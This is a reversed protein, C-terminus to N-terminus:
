CFIGKGMAMCRKSTNTQPIVDLEPIVNSSLVERKQERLERRRRGGVVGGEVDATVCGFFAIIFFIVVFLLSLASNEDRRKNNKDLHIVFTPNNPNNNNVPAPVNQAQPKDKNKVYDSLIRNVEQENTALIISQVYISGISSGGSLQILKNVNAISQELRSQQIKSLKLEERLKETEPDVTTSIKGILNKQSDIKEREFFEKTTIKNNIQEPKPHKQEGFIQIYLCQNLLFDLMEQTVEFTFNKSFKFDPTSTGKITDTKHIINDKYMQFVCYIDEYIPNNIKSAGIKIMFSLPKNLLDIKPDTIVPAAEKENLPKGNAGCPVVEINIIGAEKSKLDLIKAETKNPLLYPLTKGFVMATGIQTPTDPSEYFPDYSKFKDKNIVGDDMFDMYLETMDAKRDLFKNKNWLWELGTSFNKVCVYAKIKGDYEGRASASVPLASFVTKKDLAISIANAEEIAPLLDILEAQCQIQEQSMNAQKDSSILGSAKAIEDQAMEFTYNIDKPTAKSPDIFMYYQSAGFVLRDLHVLEAPSSLLKGNRLIKSDNLREITFKNATNTIIGHENLIGIGNLSIDSNGPLGITKKGEGELLLKITGSLSPDMNINSLHPTKKAKEMIVARDSIGATAKAQALKEEYSQQMEKMAKENEELQKQLVDDNVKQDGGQNTNTFQQLLAPDIKGGSELMKKLKANEERLDKILKETPDENVIAKTKIQKARDAYRLTSVSEDYNIDAPSIAAIMITKSNGGLANMLLKTLVSDRYPVKVNKGASNDALASIVNGLSTLSLNIAAGEKLRDGTAGTADARESGALDVLNIMSSKAMEKGAENKYKQVLNVTVITHARSSTANMNTAAITRNATGEDMLKTIDPYTGVLKKTLGQPFFGIKPDERITLGSKRNGSPNLLDRVVESYIELMSFTVEITKGSSKLPEAKNFIDECVMPVIGKNPGYGVVSYSKGSGTQGYAFLSANFGEWANKLVGLGLDNFVRKQDAYKPNDASFYGNSETKFSDHSWYSYDYAYKKEEKTQPHSIITQNGAMSVILKSKADKERQNFPRVRVAVKLNEEAM